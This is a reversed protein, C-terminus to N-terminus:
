SQAESPSGVEEDTTVLFAVPPYSGTEARLEALGHLGQVLGTKIDFVRPGRRALGPDRVAPPAAHGAALGHPSRGAAGSSPRRSRAALASWRTNGVRRLGAGHAARRAAM